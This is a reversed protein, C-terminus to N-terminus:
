LFEVNDISKGHYIPGYNISEKDLWACMPYTPHYPPCRLPFVKHIAIDQTHWSAGTASPGPETTTKPRSRSQSRSRSQESQIPFTM